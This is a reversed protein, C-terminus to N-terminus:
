FTVASGMKRCGPLAAVRRGASHGPATQSRGSSPEVGVQARRANEEHSLAAEGRIESAALKLDPRLPPAEPAPHTRQLRRM